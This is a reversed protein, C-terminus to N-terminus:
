EPSQDYLSFFFRQEDTLNINLEAARLECNYAVIFLCNNTRFQKMLKYHFSAQATRERYQLLYCFFFFVPSVNSKVTYSYYYLVTYTVKIILQSSRETFKQIDITNKQCFYKECSKSNANIVIRFFSKM